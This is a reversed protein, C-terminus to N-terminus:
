QEELATTLVTWMRRLRLEPSLDTRTAWRRASAIALAVTEERTDPREVESEPLWRGDFSKYLPVGIEPQRPGAMTTPEVYTETVYQMPTGTPGDIFPVATRKRDATM